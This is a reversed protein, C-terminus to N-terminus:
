PAPPDWRRFTAPDPMWAEPEPVPRLLHRHRELPEPTWTFTGTHPPPATWLRAGDPLLAPVDGPPPQETRVVPGPGAADVDISFWSRRGNPLLLRFPVPAGSARREAAALELSRFALVPVAGPRPLTRWARVAAAAARIGLLSGPGEDFAIAAVGGWGLGAAGLAEGVARPVAEEAPGDSRVLSRWGEPALVGSWAGGLAADVLLVASLDM